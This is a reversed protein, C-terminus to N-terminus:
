KDGDKPNLKIEVALGLASAIKIITSLRVELSGREVEILTNRHVGARQAVEEQTKGMRRRQTHILEGLTM